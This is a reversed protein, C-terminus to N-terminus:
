PRATPMSLGMRRARGQYYRLPAPMLHSTNATLCAQVSEALQASWERSRWLAELSLVAIGCGYKTEYKSNLLNKKLSVLHGKAEEIHGEELAALILVELLDLDATKPRQQVDQSRSVWYKAAIYQKALLSVWARYVYLISQIMQRDLRSCQLTAAIAQDFLQNLKESDLTEPSGIANVHAAFALSQLQNAHSCEDLGTLNIKALLGDIASPRDLLSSYEIMVSLAFQQLPIHHLRVALDFISSMNDYALAINGIREDLHGFETALRYRGEGDDSRLSPAAKELV